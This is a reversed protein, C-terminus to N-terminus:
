KTEFQRIELKIKRAGLRICRKTGLGIGKAGTKDDLKNGIANNGIKNKQSGAKYVEQTGLGKGKAGTKDDVKNEIAKNAM